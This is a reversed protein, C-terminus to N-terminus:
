CCSTEIVEVASVVAEYYNKIAVYSLGVSGGHAIQHRNTVVSNIADKQHDLLDRELAERWAPDFKGVWDLIKGMKANQLDQLDREVFNSIRKDAHKEAYSSLVIKVSNEIFGSVLVCLYRSWHSQLEVDADLTKVKDFLSDLRQKQRVLDINKM